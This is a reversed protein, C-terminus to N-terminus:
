AVGSSPHDKLPPPRTTTGEHSLSLGLQRSVGHVVRDIQDLQIRIAMLSLVESSLGGQPIPRTGYILSGRVHEM